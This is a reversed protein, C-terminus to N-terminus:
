TGAMDDEKIYKLSTEGESFWFELEGELACCTWGDREHTHLCETTCTVVTVKQSGGPDPYRPGNLWRGDYTTPRFCLRTPKTYHKGKDVGLRYQGLSRQAGNQYELLIGRCLKRKNGRYISIRVVDKLPAFSYCGGRIPPRDIKLHNFTAKCASNNDEVDYARTTHIPTLESKHYAITSPLSETMIFDKGHKPFSPGVFVDGALKLRIQILDTLRYILLDSTDQSVLICLGHYPYESAEPSQIGFAVISDVTPIPVYVWVLAKQQERTLNNFTKRADPDITTHPHVTYGQRFAFFFTLGDIASFDVTELRGSSPFDAPRCICQKVSPPTPTDWIQPDIKSPPIELRM